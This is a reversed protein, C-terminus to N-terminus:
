SAEESNWDTRIARQSIKGRNFQVVGGFTATPKSVVIDGLRIDDEDDSPIGGGIGVLLGFRNSTFDNLLRTVTVASNNGMEPMVAIVVNYARITGVSLYVLVYKDHSFTQKVGRPFFFFGRPTEHHNSFSEQKAVLFEAKKIINVVVIACLIQYYKYM